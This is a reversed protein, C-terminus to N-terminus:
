SRNRAPASRVRISVSRERAPTGLHGRFYKSVVVNTALQSWAAPIEADEQEFIVEGQENAITASRQEAPPALIEARHSARTRPAHSPGRRLPRRM